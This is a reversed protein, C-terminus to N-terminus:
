APFYQNYYEDLKGFNGWVNRAGGRMEEKFELWTERTEEINAVCEM